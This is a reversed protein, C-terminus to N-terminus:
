QRPLAIHDNDRNRENTDNEPDADPGQGEIFIPLNRNQFYNLVANQGAAILGARQEDNINFDHQVGILVIGRNRSPGKMGM